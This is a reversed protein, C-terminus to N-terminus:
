QVVVATMPLETMDVEGATTVKEEVAVQEVQGPPVVTSVLVKVGVM